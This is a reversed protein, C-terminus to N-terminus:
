GGLGLDLVEVDPSVAAAIAEPDFPSGVGALFELLYDQRYRRDGVALRERALFGPEIRPCETAPVRVRRWGPEREWAQWFWGRQGYPTSLGILSGRSVALMPRVAHYLADGVLAAEDIVLLRVASYGVVGQENEPLSVVRSGNALTLSLQTRGAEPAPRGIRDYLRLLKDRLLEGSQRLTPSLLLVLSGPELMAVRLALAAATLSKGGQRTALLLTPSCPSRLLEAQWPDPTMGADALILSPDRRYRELRPSPQAALRNAAEERLRKLLKLKAPLPWSQWSAPSRPTSMTRSM